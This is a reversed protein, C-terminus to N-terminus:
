RCDIHTFISAMFIVLPSLLSHTERGRSVRVRGQGTSSLSRAVSGAAGAPKVFEKERVM